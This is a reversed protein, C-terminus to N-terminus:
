SFTLLFLNSDKFKICYIAKSEAKKKNFFKTEMGLQEWKSKQYNWECVCVCIATISFDDGRVFVCGIIELLLKEYSPDIQNGSIPNSSSLYHTLPSQCAAEISM